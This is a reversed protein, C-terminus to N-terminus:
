RATALGMDFSNSCSSIVARPVSSFGRRACPFNGEFCRPHLFAILGWRLGGATSGPRGM